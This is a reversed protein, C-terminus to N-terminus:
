RIVMIPFCETQALLVTSKRLVQLYVRSYFLWPIANQATQEEGITAELDTALHETRSKDEATAVYEAAWVDMDPIMDEM